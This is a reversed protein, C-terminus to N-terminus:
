YWFFYFSFARSNFVKPSARRLRSIDFTFHYERFSSFFPGSILSCFKGGFVMRWVPAWLRKFSNDMVNNFIILKKDLM